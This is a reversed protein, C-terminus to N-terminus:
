SISINMLAQINKDYWTKTEWLMNMIMTMPTGWIPTYWCAAEVTKPRRGAETNFENWQQTAPPWSRHNSAPHPVAVQTISGTRAFSVSLRIYPESHIRCPCLCNVPICSNCLYRKAKKHHLINACRRSAQTLSLSSETRWKSCLSKVGCLDTTSQM